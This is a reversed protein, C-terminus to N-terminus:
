NEYPRNFRLAAGKLTYDEEDIMKKIEAAVAIDGESYRRILKSGQRIRKPLIVGKLEWYRLRESSIGIRKIAETIGIKKEKRQAM